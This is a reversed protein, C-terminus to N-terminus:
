LKGIAMIRLKYPNSKDNFPLTFFEIYYQSLVFGDKELQLKVIDPIFKITTDVGIEIIFESLRLELNM